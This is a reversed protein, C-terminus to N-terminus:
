KKLLNLQQRKRIIAVQLDHYQPWKSKHLLGKISSEAKELEGKEIYQQTMLILSDNITKSIIADLNVYLANQLNDKRAMFFYKYAEKYNRNNYHLGSLNIIAEQFDPSIRLAKNFYAISQNFDGKISYCTALNNLVHLHYPHLAEAKHFSLMAQDLNQLSFYAVGEYFNIPTSTQDMLYHNRIISETHDLVQQHQNNKRADLLKSLKKEAAFLHSGKWTFLGFAILFFIPPLQILKKSTSKQEIFLLALSFILALEIHLYMRDKPFSFFATVSYLILANLVTYALMKEKKEVAFNIKRICAFAAMIFIGVYALGGIIGTEAFVWLFDNEPRLYFMEAKRAEPPLGNLGYHPMMIKWNGAGVGTLPDEKIM